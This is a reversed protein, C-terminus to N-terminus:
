KELSKIPRSKWESGKIILRDIGIREVVSHEVLWKIASYVQNNNEISSIEDMIQRPLVGGPNQEVFDCVEVLFDKFFSDLKSEPVSFDTIVPTKETDKYKAGGLQRVVGRLNTQRTKLDDLKKLENDISKIELEAEKCIDKTDTMGKTLSEALYNTFFENSM